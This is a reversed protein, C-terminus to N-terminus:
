RNFWACTKCIRPMDASSNVATRLKDYSTSQWVETFSKNQVNGALEGCNCCLYVDGNYAVSASVFPANCNTDVIFNSKYVYKDGWWLYDGVKTPYLSNLMGNNNIFEVAREIEFRLNDTTEAAYETPATVLGYGIRKIGLSHALKAIELLQKHNDKQISIYIEPSKEIPIDFYAKVLNRINECVKEFNAGRRINEFTIKDAGDFSVTVRVNMSRLFDIMDNSLLTGNTSIDIDCDARKKSYLYTVRERFDKLILPEGWNFLSYSTIYPATEDVLKCFLDFPMIKGTIQVNDRCMKCSLNCDQTIDLYLKQPYKFSVQGSLCAQMQSYSNNTYYKMNKHGDSFIFKSYHVSLACSVAAAQGNRYILASNTRRRHHIREDNRAQGAIKKGSWKYFCQKVLIVFLPLIFASLAIGFPRQGSHQNCSTVAM